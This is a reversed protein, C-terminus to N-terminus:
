NLPVFRSHQDVANAPRPPNSLRDRSASSAAFKRGLHGFVLQWGLRQRHLIPCKLPLETNAKASLACATREAFPQKRSSASRARRIFTQFFGPARRHLWRGELRAQNMARSCTPECGQKRAKGSRGTHGCRVPRNEAFAELGPAIGSRPTESRAEIQDRDGTRAEFDFSGPSLNISGVIARKGDAIVIKGHLKLHRLLHVKAGVDHMAVTSWIRARVSQPLKSGGTFSGCGGVGPRGPGSFMPGVIRGGSHHNDCTFLM